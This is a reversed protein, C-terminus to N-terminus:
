GFPNLKLTDSDRLYPIDSRETSAVPLTPTSFKETMWHSMAMAQVSQSLVIIQAALAAPVVGDMLSLLRITDNLQEIAANLLEIRANINVEAM